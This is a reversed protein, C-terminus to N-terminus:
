INNCGTLRLIFFYPTNSYRACGTSRDCNIVSSDVLTCVDISMGANGPCKGFLYVYEAQRLETGTGFAANQSNLINRAIYECRYKLNGADAPGFVDLSHRRYNSSTDVTDVVIADVSHINIKAGTVIYEVNLAGTCPGIQVQVVAVFSDVYGRGGVKVKIGGRVEQEAVQM